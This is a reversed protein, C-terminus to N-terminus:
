EQEPKPKVEEQVPRKQARMFAKRQRNEVDMMADLEAGNDIQTSSDLHSSEKSDAASIPQQIPVENPSPGPLIPAKTLENERSITKDAQESMSPQFTVGIVPKKDPQTDGASAM